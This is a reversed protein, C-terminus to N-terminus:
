SVYPKKSEKRVGTQNIKFSMGAEGPPAIEYKRMGRILSMESILFSMEDKVTKKTKRVM